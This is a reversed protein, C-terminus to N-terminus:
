RKTSARASQWEPSYNIRSGRVTGGLKRHCPSRGEHTVSGKAYGLGFRGARRPLRALDRLGAVPHHRRLRGHGHRLGPGTLLVVLLAWLLMTRRNRLVANISSVVATVVDVERNAIFPLSFVSAAFTIAAFVSGVASGIVLFTTLERLRVEGDTPFFIHVM